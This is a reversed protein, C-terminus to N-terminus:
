QFHLQSHTWLGAEANSWIPCFDSIVIVYCNASIVDDDFKKSPKKCRKDRKTVPGLKMDIDDKTRSNHCIEKILSQGYIRFDSIGADSNQGIDLPEPM